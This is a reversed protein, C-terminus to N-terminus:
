PLRPLNLATGRRLHLPIDVGNAEAILRWRNPDGYVEHAVSHLSDGDKVVHVGLGGASRTTPNQPRNRSNSSASTATEAQTLALKVDARIPTGNPEFLQFAVTLSTCAAKFPIMEGWQFTVLPPVADGAGAGGGSSGKVDMMKFLQDTIEKVTKGGNPLTQDLLLNVQMERPKGGGFKGKPLSNGKIPDFTWNNGKTITYETPNFLVQLTDGGEIALKAKVYGQPM